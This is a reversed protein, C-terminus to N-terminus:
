AAAWRLVRAAAALVHNVDEGSVQDHPVLRLGGGSVGGLWRASRM